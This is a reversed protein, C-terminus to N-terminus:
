AVMMQKAFADREKQLAKLEKQLTHLTAVAAKYGAPTFRATRMLRQQKDVEGSKKKIGADMKKLRAQAKAFGDQTYRGTVPSQPRSAIRTM